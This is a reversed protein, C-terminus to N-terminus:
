LKIMKFVKEETESKLKLFYIGAALSQTNIANQQKNEMILLGKTNYLSATKVTSSLQIFNSFPNPHASLNNLTSPNQNGVSKKLPIVLTNKIIQDDTSTNKGDTANGISYIRVTDTPFAPSIWEYTFKGSISPSSHEVINRNGTTIVQSGAGATTTGTKGRSTNLITSQFGFTKASSNGSIEVHVTYTKNAEFTSEPKTSDKLSFWTNIAAGNNANGTHCNSIGCTNGPNGNALPAGTYDGFPGNSDSFLFTASTILLLTIIKYRITM